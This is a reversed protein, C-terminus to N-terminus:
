WDLDLPTPILVPCRLNEVRVPATLVRTLGERPAQKSSADADAHIALAATVVVNKDLTKPATYFVLFHKEFVILRTM